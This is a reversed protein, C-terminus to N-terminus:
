RIGLWCRLGNSGSLAGDFQLMQEFLEVGAFAGQQPLALTLAASGATPVVFFLADPSALLDCGAVGAPHLSALPVSANAFGVLGLAAAGSGFGNATAVFSTGLWPLTTAHLTVSGTPAPCPAGYSVATAPAPLFVLGAPNTGAAYQALVSGSGPDFEVLAGSAPVTVGVRTGDASLAIGSPPNPLLLSALVTHAALDVFQV